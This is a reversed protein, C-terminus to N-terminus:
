ISAVENYTLFTSSLCHPQKLTVQRYYCKGLQVKWWWDKFQAHETAQAALDLAQVLFIFNHQIITLLRAIYHLGIKKILYILAISVNKVDNEHHFIYEFLTQSPVNHNNSM